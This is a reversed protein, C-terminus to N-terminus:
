HIAYGSNKEVKQVLPIRLLLPFSIVISKRIPRSM